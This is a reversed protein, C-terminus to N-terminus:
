FIKGVFVFVGREGRWLGKEYSRYNKFTIIRMFVM